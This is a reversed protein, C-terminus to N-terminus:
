RLLQVCWMAAADRLFLKGDAYAPNCWNIGCVQARGIQRCEKPDAAIMVLEGRDTLVLINPGMVIMGAHVSGGSTEAFYGDKSWTQKGTHVDVCILNKSPGAGYLFGGVVVPSSFNIASEKSTWAKDAKFTAGDKSVKIGVLGAQHSAVMVMDDVVVPTTVHRGLSTKIPAHWLLTGDNPDLAIVEEAMFAIIQKTGLLTAEIPAAYGPMDSQSKWIVKGTYKDFCVISAGKQGGVEAILRDGDILPSGAYGHRSAGLAKGIEGIFIADFDHVYNAKWIIKGDLANLCQLEGRCSQAYVRDGDALPTCRPGPKSQRDHTVEDLAENWIEKGGSAEVAHVMEKGQQNDIYFVRGGSVVPSAVGEGLSIHWLINHTSLDKPVAVGDPVHGTRDPGRWQPWDAAHSPPPGLLLVTVVLSVLRARQMFRSYMTEIVVVRRIQPAQESQM